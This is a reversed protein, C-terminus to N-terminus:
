SRGAQQERAQSLDWGLMAHNLVDRLEELRNRTLAFRSLPVIPQPPLQGGMVAQEEPTGHLMPPGVYGISVIVESPAGDGDSTLQTIFQNALQPASGSLEPPWFIQVQFPVPQPAIEEPGTPASM